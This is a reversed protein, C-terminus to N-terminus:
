SEAKSRCECTAIYLPARHMSRHSLRGSLWLPFAFFFREWRQKNAIRQILCASFDVSTARLNIIEKMNSLRAGQLRVYFLMSITESEPCRM